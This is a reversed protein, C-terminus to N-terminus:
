RFLSRLLISKVGAQRLLAMVVSRHWNFRATQRIVAQVDDSALAAVFADFERDSLNALVHRFWSGTRIEPMLRQQWRGEYRSLRRASLDDAALAETLTEAAYAGSLLSYFIGGGTVPKTLGAADGAVVVRDTHTRRTPGLPLLRRVPQGPTETLRGALAPSALFARLHAGADGRVLVGAKVRAREGRRVPVFWAFGEPAVRRGVHIELADAPVADIEIQATHLMASPLGFGLERHFRYAVGSAVVVSRARRPSGHGSRVEVGGPMVRVAEVRCGTVLTVGAEDASAALAQDLGARDLVAIDESDSRLECTEGNPSVVVCLSPRHLVVPEPIKYLGWVEASVVGTCHTPVGVEEHEELVLVDLGEKALLLASYLGALGAGVVIVDHM